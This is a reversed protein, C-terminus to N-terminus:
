LMKAEAASEVAESGRALEGADDSMCCSIRGRYGLM